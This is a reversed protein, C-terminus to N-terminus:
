WNFQNLASFFPHCNKKHEAAQSHRQSVGRILRIKTWLRAPDSKERTSLWWADRPTPFSSFQKALGLAAKRWRELKAKIQNLIIKSHSRSRRRFAQYPKSIFPLRSLSICLSSASVSASEPTQVLSELRRANNFIILFDFLFSSNLYIQSRM